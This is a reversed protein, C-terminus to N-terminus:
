TVILKGDHDQKAEKLHDLVKSKKNYGPLEVYVDLYKDFAKIEVDNSSAEDYYPRKEDSYFQEDIDDINESEIYFSFALKVILNEKCM